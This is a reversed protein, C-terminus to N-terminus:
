NLYLRSTLLILSTAILIFILNAELSKRTLESRLHKRIINWYSFFVILIIAGFTLHNIPLYTMAWVLEIMLLTSLFSYFRFARNKVYDLHLALEQSKRYNIEILYYSSGYIGIFMSAMLQWPLMDTIIYIGYIGSSAFFITFMVIAQNLNFGSDLLKIKEGQPRADEPTFFRSLGILMVVFLFSSFLIFYRQLFSQGISLLFTASGSAFFFSPIVALVNRNAVLFASAASILFLLIADNVSFSFSKFFMDLVAYFLVGPVIYRLSDMFLNQLRVFRQFRM